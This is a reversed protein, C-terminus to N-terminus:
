KGEPELIEALVAKDVTLLGADVLRPTLLIWNRNKAFVERFLPLAEKHRGTNALTVATWYTMEENSPFLERAANYAEMAKDIDGHEVALDGKNMFEYARHVKLLRTMEGIPDEHDEIRLDVIRDQWVKGTSQARVVLIAASQKGRIDGGADEAAALAALLREALAQGASAEFAMAMAPWVEDSLMLNAQVAYGEGTIHGAAQICKDGTHAAVKGEHNLFAVQRVSRGEDAALLQELSEEPSKGEKMLALGQPGLDPNVFSQTAVVGVGAEGWTVLSGVSFWHSQVAVGMDGTEPDIAVISYTHALPEKGYAQQAAVDVTSIMVLLSFLSFVKM